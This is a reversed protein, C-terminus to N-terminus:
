SVSGGFPENSETFIVTAEVYVVSHVDTRGTTGDEVVFEVYDSTDNTRIFTELTTLYTPVIEVDTTAGNVTLGGASTNVIEVIVQGVAANAATATGVSTVGSLSVVMACDAPIYLKDRNTDGDMGLHLDTSTTTTGKGTFVMEFHRRTKIIGHCVDEWDLPITTQTAM